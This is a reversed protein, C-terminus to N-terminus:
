AITITKSHASHKGLVMLGMALYGLDKLIFFETTPVGEVIKWVGPTTFLFSLTTAFIVITLYGAISGLKDNWFSAILLAGTVIEFVGIFNSVAQVTAVKYMWSMLFSHEVLPMIANAETVTFKFIGIWLLILSTSVVGLTYGTKTLKM